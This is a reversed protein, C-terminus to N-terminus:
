KVDIPIFGPEYEKFQRPTTKSGGEITEREKQLIRLNLVGHRRLYRRSRSLNPNLFTRALVLNRWKAITHRHIGYRRALERHSVLVPAQQIERRIWLTTRANAHIRPM